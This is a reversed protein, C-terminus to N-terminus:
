DEGWEPWPNRPARRLPTQAARLHRHWPYTLLSLHCSARGPASASFFVLRGFNRAARRKPPSRSRRPQRPEADRRGSRPGNIKPLPPSGLSRHWLGRWDRGRKAGALERGRLRLAVPRSSEQAVERHPIRVALGIGRPELAETDKSFVKRLSVFVWEAPSVRRESFHDGSGGPGVAVRSQEVRSHM